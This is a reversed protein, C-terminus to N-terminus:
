RVRRNPLWVLSASAAPMECGVTESRFFVFLRECPCIRRMKAIAGVIPTATSGESKKGSIVAFSGSWESAAYGIRGEGFDSLPGSAIARAPRQGEGWVGPAPDGM